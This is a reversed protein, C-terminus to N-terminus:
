RVFDAKSVEWRTINFVVNPVKEFFLSFLLFLLMGEKNILAKHLFAKLPNLAKRITQTSPM